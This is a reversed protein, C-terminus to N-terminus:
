KDPAGAVQEGDGESAKINYHTVTANLEGERGDFRAKVAAMVESPKSSSLPPNSSRQDDIQESSEYASSTANGGEDRRQLPPM